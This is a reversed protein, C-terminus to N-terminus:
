SEQESLKDVGESGGEGAGQVEELLDLNDAPVNNGIARNHQRKHQFGGDERIIGRWNVPIDDPITPM